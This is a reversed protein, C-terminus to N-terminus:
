WSINGRPTGVTSEGVVGGCRGIIFGKRVCLAWGLVRLMWIWKRGKDFQQLSWFWSSNEFSSIFCDLVRKKSILGRYKFIDKLMDIIDLGELVDHMSKYVSTATRKHM